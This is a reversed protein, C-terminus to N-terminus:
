AEDGHDRRWSHLSVKSWDSLSGTYATAGGASKTNSDVSLLTSNILSRDVRDRIWCLEALSDELGTTTSDKSYTDATGLFRGVM